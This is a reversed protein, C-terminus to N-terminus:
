GEQARPAQQQIPPESPNTSVFTAGKLSTPAGSKELAGM